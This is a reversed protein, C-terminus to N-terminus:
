RRGNECVSVRLTSEIIWNCVFSLSLLHIGWCHQLPVLGLGGMGREQAALDCVGEWRGRSHRASYVCGGQSPPFMSKWWPALVGAPRKQLRESHPSLTDSKWLTQRVVPFVFGLAVKISCQIRHDFTCVFGSKPHAVRSLGDIEESFGLLNKLNKRSTQSSQLEKAGLKNWEWAYVKMFKMKCPKWRWILLRCIRGIKYNRHASRPRSCKLVKSSLSCYPM